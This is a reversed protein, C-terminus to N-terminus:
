SYLYHLHENRVESDAGTVDQKKPFFNEEAGLTWVYRAEEVRLALSWTKTTHSPIFFTFDRGVGQLCLPFLTIAELWEYGRHSTLKM